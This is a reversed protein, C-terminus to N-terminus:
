RLYMDGHFGPPGLADGYIADESTVVGYGVERGITETALQGPLTRAQRSFV